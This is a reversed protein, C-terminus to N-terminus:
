SAGRPEAASPLHATYDSVSLGRVFVHLRKIVLIAQGDPRCGEHLTVLVM